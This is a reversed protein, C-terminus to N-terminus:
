LSKDAKPAINLLDNVLCLLYFYIHCLLDYIDYHKSQFSEQYKM